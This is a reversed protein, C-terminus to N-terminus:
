YNIYVPDSSTQSDEQSCQQNPNYPAGQSGSGVYAYRIRDVFSGSTNETRQQVTSNYRLGVLADPRGSPTTSREAHYQSTYQEASDSKSQNSSPVYEEYGGRSNPVTVYWNVDPSTDGWCNNNPWTAGIESRRKMWYTGSRIITAGARLSDDSWSLLWENPLVNRVYTSTSMLIPYTYSGNAEIYRIVHDGSPVLAEADRAPISSWMLSLGIFASLLGAAIRKGMM